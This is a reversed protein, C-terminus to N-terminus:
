LDKDLPGANRQPPLPISANLQCKGGIKAAGLTRGGTEVYFKQENNKLCSLLLTEGFDYEEKKRPAKERPVGMGPGPRRDGM